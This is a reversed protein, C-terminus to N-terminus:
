SQSRLQLEKRDVFEGEVFRHIVSNLLTQYPIGMRQAETKLGALDSANIKLSIQVREAEPDVKAPRAKMKSLDYKKKM